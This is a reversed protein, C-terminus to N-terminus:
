GLALGTLHNLLMGTAPPVLDDCDVCQVPYESCAEALDADCCVPGHEDRAAPRSVGQDQCPAPRLGTAAEASSCALQPARLLVQVRVELAALSLIQPTSCLYQRVFDFPKQHGFWGCLPQRM